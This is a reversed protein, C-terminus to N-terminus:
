GKFSLMSCARMPLFSGRTGKCPPLTGRLPVCSPPCIRDFDYMIDFSCISQVTSILNLLLSYLCIKFWLVGCTSAYRNIKSTKAFQHTRYPAKTGLFSISQDLCPLVMCTNWKSRRWASHRPKQDVPIIFVPM